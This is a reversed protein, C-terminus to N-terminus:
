NMIVFMKMLEAQVAEKMNMPEREGQEAWAGVHQHHTHVSRLAGALFHIDLVHPVLEIIDGVGDLVLAAVGDNNFPTVVTDRPAGVFHNYGSILQVVEESVWREEVRQTCVGVM